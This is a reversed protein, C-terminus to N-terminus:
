LNQQTAIQKRELLIEEIEKKRLPFIPLGCLYFQKETANEFAPGDVINDHPIFKGAHFITKIKATGYETLFYGKKYETTKGGLMSFGYKAIVMILSIREDYLAGTGISIGGNIPQNITPQYPYLAPYTIPQQYPYTLPIPQYPYTLPITNSVPIWTNGTTPYIVTSTTINGTINIGNTSFTYDGTANNTSNTNSM